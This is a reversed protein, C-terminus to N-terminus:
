QKHLSSVHQRRAAMLNGTKPLNQTAMNHRFTLLAVGCVGAGGGALPTRRRWWLPRHFNLRRRTDFLGTQLEIEHHPQKAKWDYLNM